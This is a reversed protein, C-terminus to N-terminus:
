PAAPRCLANLRENLAALTYPKAIFAMDENFGERAHLAERSYGSTLLVLINPRVMRADRALEVGNVGNPMVIDTFLLDIPQPRQLIMMAESGDRAPHVDYGFSRVAQVAIELVDADDEVVLVTGHSTRNARPVREPQQSKPDGSRPLYLAISAGNGGKSAIELQGQSQRAFGYVQSLGLGSGQGVDKTTYFPEIARGLVEPTMGHGTDRVTIAVYPGASIEGLRGAAVEGILKNRTVITLVGGQPMADRANIVLNLMASQFQAQDINTSWVKRELDFRLDISESVAQKFLLEFAVLLSNVSSTQPRLVQRRSFSLLQHTLKAGRDAARHAVVLLRKVDESTTHMSILELSGVVAALLNNFDHAVGGTLQGVTEMKQAQYLQEKADELARKETIDRMIKAFGVFEGNQDRMPDIVVNAWFRTGDKRLRWGECEFRGAARASALSRAPIGADRDEPTYFVAYHRNLIDDRTYGIAREAGSNWSTVLGNMDLTFIAYNVVSDMLLRFRQESQRLAEHAEQKSSIDRTIKAFGITAGDDDFLANIVASAWFRSGDKRLRWGEDEFRGAALTTALDCMPKGAARDEPTFFRAHDQGIAEASRYGLIREAGANWTIVTGDLDIAYIAYDGIGQVLHRFLDGARIELIATDAHSLLQADAM